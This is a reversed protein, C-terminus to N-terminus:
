SLCGVREEQKKLEATYKQVTERHSDQIQKENAESTALKRELEMKEKSLLETKETFQARLFVNERQLEQLM